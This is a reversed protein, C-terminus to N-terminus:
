SPETWLHCITTQGLTSNRIISELFFDFMNAKLIWNEWPTGLYKQVVGPLSIKCGVNLLWLPINTVGFPIAISKEPNLKASSALKYTAIEEMAGRFTEEM